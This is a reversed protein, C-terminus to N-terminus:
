QGLKRKKPGVRMDGPLYELAHMVNCVVERAPGQGLVSDRDEHSLITVAMRLLEGACLMTRPKCQALRAELKQMYDLPELDVRIWEANGWMTALDHEAWNKQQQARATRWDATMKLIAADEFRPPEASPPEATKKLEVVEGM